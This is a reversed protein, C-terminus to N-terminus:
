TSVESDDHLMFWNKKTLFNDLDKNSLKLSLFEAAHSNKEEEEDSKPDDGSADAVMPAPRANPAVKFFKNIEIAVEDLLHQCNNYYAREFKSSRNPDACAIVSKCLEKRRELQNRKTLKAYPKRFM